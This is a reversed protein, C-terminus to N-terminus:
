DVNRKAAIKQLLGKASSALSAKPLQPLNSSSVGVAAAKNSERISDLIEKRLISISRPANIGIKVSEGEIKTIKIEIDEGILISEDAKRSLILM